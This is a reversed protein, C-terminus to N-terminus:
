ASWALASEPSTFFHLGQTCQILKTSFGNPKAEKGVAYCISETHFNRKHNIEKENSLKIDTTNRITKTNEVAKSFHELNSRLGRYCSNHNSNVPIQETAYDKLLKISRKIEEPLPKPDSEYIALVNVSSARNKGNTELGKESYYKAGEPVMMEVLYQKSTKHCKIKKWAHIEKTVEKIEKIHAKIKVKKKIVM